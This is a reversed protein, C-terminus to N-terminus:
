VARADAPDANAARINEAFQAVSAQWSYRQAFAVCAERSKTLCGLAARFLSDDLVGIEPSTVIDRPGTVPYAAVPVGSALAELIVLGFTDTRSPFVFVDASAYISALDSGTRTGLFKVDPYRRRFHPLAPGDGVVVKTGPLELNLFEELNKEIAVRGVNLFIPRPFDLAPESGPHFLDVDVGLTWRMLPAFGRHRLDGELSGPAVMIGRSACHFRRLWAYTLATPVLLRARVYEPFRTHYSTTFPIGRVLCAGRMALGIPGETAIHIADPAIKDIVDLAHRRSAFSLRIEPYGPMPFSLFVNPTLFHVDLGHRSAYKAVMELSRVVGNVQPAFADTAILLRM